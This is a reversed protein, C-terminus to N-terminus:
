SQRTYGVGSVRFDRPPTKFPPSRGFRDAVM